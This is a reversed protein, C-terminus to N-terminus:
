YIVGALSEKAQSAVERQPFTKIVTKYIEIADSARGSGEMIKGLRIMSFGAVEHGPFLDIMRHITEVAEESKGEQYLSEVLLFYAEPARSSYGYDRIFEKFLKASESYLNKRFAETASEFKILALPEKQKGQLDFDVEQTVSAISRLAYGKKGEYESPALAPINLAVEQKFGFFQDEVLATQLKSQNLQANLNRIKFHLVDKEDYSIKAWQYIHVLGVLIILIVSSFWSLKM